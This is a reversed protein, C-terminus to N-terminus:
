QWRVWCWEWAGVRLFVMRTGRLEFHFRYNGFPSRPFLKITMAYEM